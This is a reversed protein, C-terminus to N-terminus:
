AEVFVYGVKERKSINIRFGEKAVWPTIIPYAIPSKLDMCYDCLIKTNKLYCICLNNENKKVDRIFKREINEEEDEEIEVVIGVEPEEISIIGEKDDDLLGYDQFSFLEGFYVLYFDSEDGYDIMFFNGVKGNNAINVSEELMNFYSKATESEKDFSPSFLNVMLYILLVVVAVAIIVKIANEDVIGGRKSIM